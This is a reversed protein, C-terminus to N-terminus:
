APRRHALLFAESDLVVEAGLSSGPLQSSGHAWRLIGGPRPRSLLATGMVSLPETQQLATFAHEMRSLRLLPIAAHGAPLLGRAPTPPLTALPIPGAVPSLLTPPLLRMPITHPTPLLLPGAPLLLQPGDFDLHGLFGHWPLRLPPRRRLQLRPLRALALAWGGM